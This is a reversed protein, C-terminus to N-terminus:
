AAMEWEQQNNTTYVSFYIEENEIRDLQNIQEILRIIDPDGKVTQRYIARIMHDAWKRVKGHREWLSITQESTGILDALKNQSMDLEQRIFRFENGSLKPKNEVLHNGIVRHLGDVNDVSVAKGYPTDIEHYGNVLWINSLGSETYHYGKLKKM